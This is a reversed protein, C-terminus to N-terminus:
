IVLLGQAHRESRCRPPAMATGAIVCCAPTFLVFNCCLAASAESVATVASSCCSPRPSGSSPRSASELLVLSSTCPPCVDPLASLSRSLEDLSSNKRCRLTSSANASFSCARGRFSRSTGLDAVAEGPRNRWASQGGRPEARACLISALKADNPLPRLSRTLVGQFTRETTSPDKRGGRVGPPPHQEPRAPHWRDQSTVCRTFLGEPTAAWLSRFRGM